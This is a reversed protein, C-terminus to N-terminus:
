VFLMCVRRKVTHSSTRTTHNTRLLNLQISPYIFSHPQLPETKKKKMAVSIAGGRDTNIKFYYLECV